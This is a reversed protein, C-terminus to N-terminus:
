GHQAEQGSLVRMPPPPTFPVIGLVACIKLASELACRGHRTARDVTAESVGAEVSLRVLSWGKRLRARTVLVAFQRPDTQIDTPTHLDVSM